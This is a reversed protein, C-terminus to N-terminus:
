AAKHRLYYEAERACDSLPALETVKRFREISTPMKMSRELQGLRLLIEATERGLDVARRLNEHEGVADGLKKYVEALGILSDTSDENVLLVRRYEEVAEKYRGSAAYLGALIKHGDVHGPHAHFLTELVKEARAFDRKKVLIIALNLMCESDCPNLSVARQWAEACLDPEGAMEYTTALSKHWVLNKEDIRILKELSVLAQDFDELKLYCQSMLFLSRNNLDAKRLAIKLHSIAMAHKRQKFFCNGLNFHADFAGPNNAVVRCLLEVADSINNQRIHLTALAFMAAELDPFRELIIKYQAVAGSFDGHRRLLEALSLRVEFKEPVANAALMLYEVQRAVEGKIECIKALAVFASFLGPKLALAKELHFWADDYLKQRILCHSIEVRLQANERDAKILRDFISQAEKLNGNKLYLRALRQLLDIDDPNQTSQERLQDFLGSLERPSELM